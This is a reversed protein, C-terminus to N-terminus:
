FWVFNSVALCEHEAWKLVYKKTEEDAPANCKRKVQMLVKLPNAVEITALRIGNKRLSWISAEGRLVDGRYTFVCNKMARGEALLQKDGSIEVLEFTNLLLGGEGVELFTAPKCGSPQYAVVTANKALLADHRFQDMERQLSAISRRHLDPVNGDPFCELLWILIKELQEVDDTTQRAFFGLMRVMKAEFVFAQHLVFKRCLTSALQHSGGQGTIQVYRLAEWLNSFRLNILQHSMQRTLYVGGIGKLGLNAISEGKAATDFLTLVVDLAMTQHFYLLNYFSEPVDYQVFTHRIFSTFLKWASKERPKWLNPDRRQKLPAVRCIAVIFEPTLLPKIGKSLLIGLLHTAKQWSKRSLDVENLVFLPHDYALTKAKGRALHHLMTKNLLGGSRRLALDIECDSQQQALRALRKNAVKQRRARGRTNYKARYRNPASM